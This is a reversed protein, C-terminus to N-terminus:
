EGRKYTKGARGGGGAVLRGGGGLDEERRRERADEWGERGRGRGPERRGRTGKEEGRGHTKGARGGGGAVLRGGGELGRRKEEGTRRGLGRMRGDGGDVRTRRRWNEGSAGCEERGPGADRGLGETSRKSRSRNAERGLRGSGVARVLDEEICQQGACIQKGAKGVWIQKPRH